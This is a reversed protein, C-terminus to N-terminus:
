NKILETHLDKYKNYQLQYNSLIENTNCFLDILTFQSVQDQLLITQNQTHIEVIQAGLDNLINLLVSNDNIFARSKGNSNM